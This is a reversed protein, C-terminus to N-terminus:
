TLEPMEAEAKELWFGMGMERCMTTATTLHEEAKTRDGRKRHVTGLGLHCHAQLPRMGFETSLALAQRYQGEGRSTPRIEVFRSKASSVSPGRSTVANVARASKCWRAGPWHRPM